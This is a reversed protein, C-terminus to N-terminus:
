LHCRRFIRVPFDKQMIIRILLLIFIETIQKITNIAQMATAHEFEAAFSSLPSVTFAESVTECVAVSVACFLTPLESVEFVVAAPLLFLVVEFFCVVAEDDLLLLLLPSSLSTPNSLPFETLVVLFPVVVVSFCVDAEFSGAVSLSPQTVFHYQVFLVQKHLDKKMIYM